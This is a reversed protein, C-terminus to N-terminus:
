CCTWSSLPVLLRCLTCFAFYFALCVGLKEGKRAKKEEKRGASSSALVVCPCRPSRASFFDENFKLTREAPGFPPLPLSHLSFHLAFGVSINSCNEFQLPLAGDATRLHDFALKWFLCLNWGLPSHQAFLRAPHFRALKEPRVVVHAMIKCPPPYFSFKWM